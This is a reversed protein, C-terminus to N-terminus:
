LTRTSPHGTEVTIGSGKVCACRAEEGARGLRSVGGKKSRPESGGYFVPVRVQGGSGKVPLGAATNGIQLPAESEPHEGM